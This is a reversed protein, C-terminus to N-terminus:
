KLLLSSRIIMSVFLYTKANQKCLASLQGICSHLHVHNDTDNVQFSSEIM